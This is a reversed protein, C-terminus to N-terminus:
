NDYKGWFSYKRGHALYIEKKYTDHSTFKHWDHITKAMSDLKKLYRVGHPYSKTQGRKLISDLLARYLLTATLQRQEKEMSQALPLLSDYFNGNLQEASQQIYEEAEAFCKTQILFKTDLHSFRKTALIEKAQENIVRQRQDIGATGVAIVTLLEDLSHLSRGSRFRKWAVETTKTSEGLETYIAQLLKDRKDEMFSTPEEDREVWALAKQPEGYQLYVKAIDLCAATNLSGGWSALRAKEFLPADGLQSALEEVGRYWSRQQYKEKEKKARWEFQKALTRLEEAPMSSGAAELLYDRVGYDNGAFLKILRQGLWKKDQCDAAYGAFLNTAYDRFVDGVEGNSDDCSEFIYRDHEFFLTVLEVGTKGDQVTNALDELLGELERAFSSAYRWNYFFDSNKLETLRTKFRGVKEQPTAVLREVLENAEESFGAMELLSDALIEPGLALLKNRIGTSM